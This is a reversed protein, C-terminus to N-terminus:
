DDGLDAVTCNESKGDIIQQGFAFCHQIAEQRTKFAHSASFQRSAVQGGRHKLIVINVTWEQSDALQDPVAKIEYGKYSTRDM